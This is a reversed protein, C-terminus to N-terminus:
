LVHLLPTYLSYYQKKQPQYFRHSSLRIETDWRSFNSLDRQGWQTCSSARLAYGMLVKPEKERGACTM